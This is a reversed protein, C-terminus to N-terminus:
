QSRDNSFLMNMSIYTNNRKTKEGDAPQRERKLKVKGNPWALKFVQMMTAM